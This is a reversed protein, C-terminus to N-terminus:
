KEIQERRALSKKLRTLKVQAGRDRRGESVERWWM